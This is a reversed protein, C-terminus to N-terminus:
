CGVSPTPAHLTWAKRGRGRQHSAKRMVVRLGQDIADEATERRQGRPRLQRRPVPQFAHVDLVGLAQWPRHHIAGSPADVEARAVPKFALQLREVLRHDFLVDFAESRFTWYESPRGPATTSRAAPRM